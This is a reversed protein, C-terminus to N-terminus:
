TRRNLFDVYGRVTERAVKLNDALMANQIGQLMEVGYDQDPEEAGKEPLSEGFKTYVRALQKEMAESDSSWITKRSAGRVAVLAAAAGRYIYKPDGDIVDVLPFKYSGVQEPNEADFWLFGKRYKDWDKAEWEGVPKDVETSVWDRYNKAATIADWERTRDGEIGYGNFSVVSKVADIAAQSNMGWVVVSIEFLKVEILTRIGTKEDMKAKVIDFGFSLADLIGEKIKQRIEQAKAVTSFRAKFWLGHEDEKADEVIGIVASTGAFFDHSDLLKIRKAKMGERLTKAFAGKQVIDNGNDVNGFVSAYGEVYGATNGEEEVVKVKVSDPGFSLISKKM